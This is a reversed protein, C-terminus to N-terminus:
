KKRLEEVTKFFCQRLNKTLEGPKGNAIQIEDAHTVPLIEIGTNVIFAEDAQYIDEVTISTEECPTEIKNAIEMIFKRTVGPLIYPSLAPTKIKKSKVIFINSASGESVIKDNELIIGEYANKRNALEKIIIQSLYNCSKIQPNLTATQTASNPFTAVKIGNDYFEQPLAPFEKTYVVITPPSAQPIALGPPGEGRTITIRIYAEELNNKKLTKLVFEQLQKKSYPIELFIKQLSDFLRDLHDQIRFVNGGYARLTEFLGDGLMFGRDLPSVKANKLPLFKGNLFVIENEM